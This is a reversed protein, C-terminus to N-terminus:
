AAEALIRRAANRGAIGMVGGGPHCGAGCLYLGALPTGYQTAGPVPRVMYFQDLALDAHHWHGGTVGFEREIDPPALLEAAIISARLGPAHRELTDIALDMCRQRGEGWGGALAYPVYQVIASLVHRGAPALGPDAVTPVSIELAPASSCEGYKSHDYAQELYALSPAILLRSALRGADLGIFAPARDLALHLKAALGRTRLHSLRRVFGTDLHEAGLLRLFTAKPDASSVVTLAGIQEGSELVIGSARDARVAIRAVKAGVRITAGAARAAGALAESLAGIGGSVQIAGDRGARSEGALRYLQTLVTGPSRPGFNTGLVADFGLAGKLLPTEFHEELLDYVNMGIIRLLERMDRRGLRRIQWGLRLLALRDSWAEGGLRPPTGEILPALTAAFRDLRLRFEPWAEADSASRAALAALAAPEHASGAPGAIPLAPGDAALAVTAVATAAYKLGHAELRLEARLAAPMLHLFQPGASVRFGPAFERTAATGGLREAAELVLVSRGAHALYAACVLGNHGGGVVVCDWAGAPPRTAPVSM